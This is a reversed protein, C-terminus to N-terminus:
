TVVRDSKSFLREKMILEGLSDLTVIQKIAQKKDDNQCTM